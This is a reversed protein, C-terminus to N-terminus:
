ACPTGNRRTRVPKQWHELGGERQQRLQQPQAAPVETASSSRSSSSSSTGKRNSDSEAQQTDRVGQQRSSHGQRVGGGRGGTVLWAGGGRVLGIIHPHDLRAHIAVERAVQVGHWCPGMPEVCVHTWCTLLMMTHPGTRFNRCPPHKLAGGEERTSYGEVVRPGRGRRVIGQGGARVQRCNLPSLKRKKYTKIALPLSTKKCFAYWVTSANGTGIQKAFV